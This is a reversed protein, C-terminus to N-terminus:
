GKMWERRPRCGLGQDSQVPSRKIKDETVGGSKVRREKELLIEVRKKQSREIGVSDDRLLPTGGGGEGMRETRGLRRRIERKKKKHSPTSMGTGQMKAQGTSAKKGSPLCLRRGRLRSRSGAKASEGSGTGGRKKSTGVIERSKTALVV